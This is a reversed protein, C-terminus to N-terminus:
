CCEDSGTGVIAADDGRLCSQRARPVRNRPYASALNAAWKKSSKVSETVPPPVALVVVVVVVGMASGTTYRLKNQRILREMQHELQIPFM